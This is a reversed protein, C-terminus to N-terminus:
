LHNGCGGISTWGCKGTRDEKDSDQAFVATATVIAIAVALFLNKM